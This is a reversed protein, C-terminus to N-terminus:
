ETSKHQVNLIREAIPMTSTGCQVIGIDPRHQSCASCHQAAFGLERPARPEWVWSRMSGLDHLCEPRRKTKKMAKM